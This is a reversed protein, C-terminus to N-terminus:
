SKQFDNRSRSNVRLNKKTAKLSNNTLTLNDQLKKNEDKAKQLSLKLSNIDKGNFTVSDQLDRLDRSQATVMSKLKALENKFETNEKVTTSLQIQIDVLINKIELLNSEPNEEGLTQIADEVGVAMNSKKGPCIEEEISGTDGRKNKRNRSMLSILHPYFRFLLVTFTVYNYSPLFASNLLCALFM